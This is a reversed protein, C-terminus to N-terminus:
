KDSKHSKMVAYSGQTCGIPTATSTTPAAVSTSLTPSPAATQSPVCAFTLSM